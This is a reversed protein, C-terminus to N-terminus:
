SSTGEYIANICKVLAENNQKTFHEAEMSKAQDTADELSPPKDIIFFNSVEPPSTSVQNSINLLNPTKPFTLIRKYSRYPNLIPTSTTEFSKQLTQNPLEPPPTPRAQTVPSRPPPPPPHRQPPPTTQFFHLDPFLPSPDTSKEQYNEPCRWNPNNSGYLTRKTQFRFKEKEKNFSNKFDSSIKIIM